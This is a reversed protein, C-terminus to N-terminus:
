TNQLDFNLLPLNQGAFTGSRVNCSSVCSKFQDVRHDENSFNARPLVFIQRSQVRVRFIDRSTDVHTNKVTRTNKKKETLRRRTHSSGEATGRLRSHLCPPCSGTRTGRRVRSRARRSPRDRHTLLVDSLSPPPRPPRAFEEEEEGFKKRASLDTHCLTTEARNEQSIFSLCFPQFLLDTLPSTTASCVDM